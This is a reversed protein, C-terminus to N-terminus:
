ESQNASDSSRQDGEDNVGGEQLKEIVKERQDIKILLKTLLFMPDPKAVQTDQQNPQKIM